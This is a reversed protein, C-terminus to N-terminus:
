HKAAKYKELQQSFSIPMGGFFFLLRIRIHCHVLEEFLIDVLRFCLVMALGTSTREFLQKWCNYPRTWLKFSISWSTFCSPMVPIGEWLILFIIPVLCCYIDLSDFIYINTPKHTLALYSLKSTRIKPKSGFEAVM